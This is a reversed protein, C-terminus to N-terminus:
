AALKWILVALLLGALVLGALMWRRRRVLDSRFKPQTIKQFSGTSLYSALRRRESEDGPSERRRSFGGIRSGSPTLRAQRRQLKEWARIERAIERLERNVAALDRRFPRRGLARVVAPPLERKM